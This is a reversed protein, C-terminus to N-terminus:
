RNGDIAVLQGGPKRGPGTKVSHGCVGLDARVGGAEANEGAPTTAHLCEVLVAGRRRMSCSEWPTRASSSGAHGAGGGDDASAGGAKDRSLGQGAGAQTDCDVVVHGRGAAFQQHGAAAPQVEGMGFGQIDEQRAVAGGPKPQLRDDPGKRRLRQDLPTVAEALRREDSGAPPHKRGRHLSRRQQPGPQATEAIQAHLQMSPMAPRSPVRIASEAEVGPLGLPRVHGHQRTPAGGPWLEAGVGGPGPVEGARDGREPRRVAAEQHVPRRMQAVAEGAVGSFRRAM